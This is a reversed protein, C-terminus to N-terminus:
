YVRNEWLIRIIVSIRSYSIRQKWIVAFRKYKWKHKTRRESMNGTLGPLPIQLLYRTYSWGRWKWRHRLWCLPLRSTRVLTIWFRIVYIAAISFLGTVTNKWCERATVTKEKEAKGSFRRWWGCHMPVMAESRRRWWSTCNYKRGRIRIGSCACQKPIHMRKQGDPYKETRSINYRIHM